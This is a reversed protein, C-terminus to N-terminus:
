VGVAGSHGGRTVEPSEDELALRFIADFSVEFNAESIEQLNQVIAQRRETSLEPWFAEFAALDAGALDSLQYLSAMPVPQSTDRLRALVSKFGENTSM